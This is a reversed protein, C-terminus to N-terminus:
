SGSGQATRRGTTFRDRGALDRHDVVDVFSGTGELLAVVAPGQVDAHEVVVLGGVRLLGAARAAVGRMVDLGDEGGGWLALGPDHELVEPDRIVAGHPIYPPNSVVVDVTGDLDRFADAADGLRVDVGLGQLNREAWAHAEASLEVAAVRTQPAEVAVSAAIAGSGTCLDVVLPHDVGEGTMATVADLVAEVVVETEPRPVFVGPGVVLSLRRFYARGTLHQLPIRACRRAVLEEIADAQDRTCTDRLVLERQEIGLVHVALMGADYWDSDVGAAALRAAADRVLRRLDVDDVATM